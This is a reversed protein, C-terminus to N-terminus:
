QTLLAQFISTMQALGPSFRVQPMRFGKSIPGTQGEDAEGVWYALREAYREITEVSNDNPGGYIIIYELNPYDRDLVSLITQELFQGQNYSPTVVSIKPSRPKQDMKCNAMCASSEHGGSLWCRNM